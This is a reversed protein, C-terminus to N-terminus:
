LLSVSRRVSIRIMLKVKKHIIFRRENEFANVNHNGESSVKVIYTGPTTPMETTYDDSANEEKYLIKKDDDLYKLQAKVSPKEPYTM